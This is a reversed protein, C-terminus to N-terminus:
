LASIILASTPVSALRVYKLRAQGFPLKSSYGYRKGPTRPSPQTLVSDSSWRMPQSRIFGFIGSEMLALAAESHTKHDLRYGLAAFCASYFATADEFKRTGLSVHDIMRASWTPTPILVASWYGEFIMQCTVM